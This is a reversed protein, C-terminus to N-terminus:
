VISFVSTTRCFLLELYMICLCSCVQPCLSPWLLSTDHQISLSPSTFSPRSAQILLGLHSFFQGYTASVQPCWCPLSCISSYATNLLDLHHNVLNLPPAPPSPSEVTSSSPSV